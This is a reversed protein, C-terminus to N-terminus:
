QMRPKHTGHAKPTHIHAKRVYEVPVGKVASKCLAEDLISSTELPSMTRIVPSITLNFM